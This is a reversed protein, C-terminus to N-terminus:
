ITNNNEKEMNLRKKSAIVYKKNALSVKKNVVKNFFELDEEKSDGNSYIGVKEDNYLKLEFAKRLANVFKENAFHKTSVDRIERENIAFEAM